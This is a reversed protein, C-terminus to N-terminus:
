NFDLSGLSVVQNLLECCNLSHSIYVAYRMRGILSLLKLSFVKVNFVLNLPQGLLLLIELILLLNQLLYEINLFLVLFM